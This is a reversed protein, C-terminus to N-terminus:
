VLNQESNGPAAVAILRLLLSATGVNYGCCGYLGEGKRNGLLALPLRDPDLFMRRALAPVSDPFNGKWVQGQPLAALAKGLTPDELQNWDEVVFHIGCGSKKLNEGEQALENLLHETPERNVELWLLLSLPCRAFLEEGTVVQRAQNELSFEPFPCCELMEEATGERFTLTEEGQQGAELAFEWRRCLQNGGPMRRTTWIRYEGPALSLVLSKGAEMTGTSIVKWGGEKRALSYDQEGVASQDQPARLVLCATKEGGWLPRFAGNEWLQPVGDELYSPIGLARCAACFLLSQGAQTAKGIALIGEPTGWLAEYTDGALPARAQVWDWLLRPEGRFRSQEQSSFSDELFRHWPTLVELGIRPSLLGQRFPSEPVKEEWFLAALGDELVERSVEVARDKETLTEWLRRQEGQPVPVVQSRTKKERLSAARDLCERRKRQQDETLSAVSVGGDDPAIWTVDEPVERQLGQGLVLKVSDMEPGLIAEGLLEPEEPDWGAVLLTGRGLNLSVNGKEGTRRLAVERPAAMNMVAFSVPVGAAPSGDEREVQVTVVRTKGYRGTVTEYAVGEELDWDLPDTQPFLFAVEERTGQLFSRTHIMVARAAAYTFWGRDLVPEPECAGLYRWTEGDFAEVWAHNDDCHSWWPAYVQRAAIGVSRLATVLFTSEEGCRGYGCRYVQLPSATRLDTTHYTAEEACWRNVELIAEPLSLGEVRKELAQRFLERCDALEETNIRPYLVDKLFLHEPLAACWSFRKRVELAQRVFNRFFGPSYDGIDTWPLTAYLFSLLLGEEPGCQGLERELEEGRAGLSGKRRALQTETYQILERSWNM